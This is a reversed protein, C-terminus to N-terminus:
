RLRWWRWAPPRRLERLAVGAEYLRFAAEYARVEEPTAPPVGSERGRSHLGAPVFPETVQRVLMRVAADDLPLENLRRAEAALAPQGADDAAVAFRRLRARREREPLPSASM